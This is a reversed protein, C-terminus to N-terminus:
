DIIDLNCRQKQRNEENNKILVGGAV